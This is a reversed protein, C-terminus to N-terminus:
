SKIINALKQLRSKTGEHLGKPFPGTGTAGYAGGYKGGSKTANGGKTEGYAEDLEEEEDDVDVDVEGGMDDDGMDDGGMDPAPPTPPVAPGGAMGPGAAMDEAEFHGKLMDYINRLMQEPDEGMQIDDDAVSIAPNATPPMPPMPAGAADQEMLYRSYEEAVMKKLESLKM